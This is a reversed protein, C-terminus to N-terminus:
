CKRNLVTNRNEGNEDTIYRAHFCYSGEIDSTLYPVINENALIQGLPKLEYSLVETPESETMGDDTIAPITDKEM